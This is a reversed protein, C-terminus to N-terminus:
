RSYLITTCVLRYISGRAVRDINPTKYGMLGNNNFSVNSWGIDDGWIVLINPKDQAVATVCALMLTILLLTPKKM